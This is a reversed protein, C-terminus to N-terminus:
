QVGDNRQELLNTEPNHEIVTFYGNISQGGREIHIQGSPRCSVLFSGDENVVEIWGPRDEVKHNNLILQVKVYDGKKPNDLIM